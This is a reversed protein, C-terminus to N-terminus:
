NCRFELLSRNNSAVYRCFNDSSSCPTNLPNSTGPCTDDSSRCNRVFLDPCSEVSDLQWTQADPVPPEVAVSRIEKCGWSGASWIQVEGGPCNSPEQQAHDKSTPDIEPTFANVCGASTYIRGQQHCDTMIGVENALDKLESNLTQLQQLYKSYVAINVQEQQTKVSNEISQAVVPACLLMSLLSLKLTKKIIFVYMM